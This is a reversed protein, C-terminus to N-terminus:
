SLLNSKIQMNPSVFPKFRYQPVFFITISLLTIIALYFGIRIWQATVIFCLILLVTSILTLLQYLPNNEMILIQHNHAIFFSKPDEKVTVKAPYYPLKFTQSQQHSLRVVSQQDVTLELTRWSNLVNTNRLVTISM